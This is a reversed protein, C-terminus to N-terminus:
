YQTQKIQKNKDKGIRPMQQAHSEVNRRRLM